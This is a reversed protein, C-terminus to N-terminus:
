PEESELSATQPCNDGSYFSDPRSGVHDSKLAAPAWEAGTQGSRSCDEKTYVLRDLM